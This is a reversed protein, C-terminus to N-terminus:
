TQPLSWTTFLLPEILIFSSQAIHSAVKLEIKKSLEEPLRFIADKKKKKAWLTHFM